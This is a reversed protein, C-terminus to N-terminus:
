AEKKARHEFFLAYPEDGSQQVIFKWFRENKYLVAHRIAAVHGDALMQQYRLIGALLATWGIESPECYADLIELVRTEADGREGFVAVVRGDAKIGVWVRDRGYTSPPAGLGYREAYQGHLRAIAPDDPELAVAEISDVTATM